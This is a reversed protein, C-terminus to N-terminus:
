LFGWSESAGSHGTRIVWILSIVSILAALVNVGIRLGSSKDRFSERATGVMGIVAIAQALSIFRLQNGLSRHDAIREEASLLETLAEGSSAALFTSVASVVAFIAVGPGIRKLWVPRAIVGLVLLALLPIAVVPFHM